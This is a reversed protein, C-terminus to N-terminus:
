SMPKFEDDYEANYSHIKTTILNILGEELDEDIINEGCDVCILIPEDYQVNYGGFNDAMTIFEVIVKVDTECEECYAKM